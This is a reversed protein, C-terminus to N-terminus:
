KDENLAKDIMDNLETDLQAENDLVVGAESLECRLLYLIAKLVYMAEIPGKCEKRLLRSVKNGIKQLREVDLNLRNDKSDM